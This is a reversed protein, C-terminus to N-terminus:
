DITQQHNSRHVVTVDNESALSVATVDGFTVQPLKDVYYNLLKKIPVQEHRSCRLNKITSEFTAEIDAYTVSQLARL